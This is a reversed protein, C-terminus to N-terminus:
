EVNVDDPPLFDIVHVTKKLTFLFFFNVNHVLKLMKSEILTYRSFNKKIFEDCVSSKLQWIKTWLGFDFSKIHRFVFVM